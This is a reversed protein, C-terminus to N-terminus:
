VGAFPWTIVTVIVLLAGHATDVVAVLLGIVIVTIGSAIGTTAIEDVDFLTQLPVSTFKVAAASYPPVAAAYVQIFSPLTTPVPDLM